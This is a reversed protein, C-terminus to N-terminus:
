ARPHAADYVSKLRAASVHTYIQTSSLSAHGMLEQVSRLDAGADLLHTAFSHRLVHPSLGPDLGAEALYRKFVREVSRATLRGGGRNVFLPGSNRSGFRLNRADLYMAIAEAAPRGLPGFREKRRKGRIKVSEGLLDLDADDLGVTERIRLGGSYMIELLARDRIGLFGTEDRRAGSRAADGGRAACAGPADLLRAVDRASLVGPLRRRRAPLVMRGVPSERVVGERELFRFFSRLSSMKRQLTTRSCGRRQLEGLFGRVAFRDIDRWSFRKGEPLGGEVYVRLAAVDAGYAAVTHSSADREGRLM